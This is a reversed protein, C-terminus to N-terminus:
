KRYSGIIALLERVATPLDDNVIVHRYLDKQAM